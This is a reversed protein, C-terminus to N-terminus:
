RSSFDHKYFIIYLLRAESFIDLLIFFFFPAVDSTFSSTAAGKVKYEIRQQESVNNSLTIRRRVQSKQGPLRNLHFPYLYLLSDPHLVTRATSRNLSTAIRAVVDIIMILFHIEFKYLFDQM